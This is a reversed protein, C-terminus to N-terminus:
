FQRYMYHGSVTCITVVPSYIPQISERQLVCPLSSASVQRDGSRETWRASYQPRRVCVSPLCSINPVAGAWRQQASGFRDLMFACNTLGIRCAALWLVELRGDIFCCLVRHRFRRSSGALTVGDIQSWTTLAVLSRKSLHIGEEEMIAVLKPM